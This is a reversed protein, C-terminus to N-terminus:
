PRRQPQEFGIAVVHSLNEDTLAESTPMHTAPIPTRLSLWPALGFAIDSQLVRGLAERRGGM